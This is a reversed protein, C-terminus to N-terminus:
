KILRYYKPVPGIPDYVVYQTGIVFVGSAPPFTVYYWLGPVSISNTKYQLQYGPFATSWFLEVQNSPALQINLTPLFSYVQVIRFFGGNPPVPLVEFTTLPTTATVSGLNEWNVPTALSAVFQVIYREGIVSNWSLLLGHPPPLASIGIHIPQASVLLGNNDPLTARISYAVNTQENNYVGLYWTGRLDPVDASPRLVIQEPSTGTFFSGDFYPAMVPPGMQQLLLDGDGSLNYLEFLVGSTRNTIVFDYFLMQPPGPPAAFPSAPSPVDFAIDNTLEIIMPYNTSYCAQVSFQTNSPGSNFVGAYWRNTQIPFPTTNTVLMVIQDNTCPAQSIYDFHDLDPLPLHESLVVSVGCSVGSLWFSVAQPQKGPQTSATPVDFQFYRPIGATGVINSLVMQCNSLTTIDFAVELAFTVSVANPNTVAMYYPQGPALPPTGNTTLTVTGMSAPGILALNTAAPFNTPNYLVTVPFSNTTMYDQAFLLENTANTAWQPTQVIFYQIVGPPLTNTYPIGHLLSIVPPPNSPGLGFNLQWEILQDLNTPGAPGARSDWLELTWVGFADEGFLTSLSVEPLYYLESPLQTLTIGELL